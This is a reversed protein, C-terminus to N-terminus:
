PSVTTQIRFYRRMAKGDLKARKFLNAADSPTMTDRARKLMDSAYEEKRQIVEPDQPEEGLQNLKCDCKTCMRKGCHHYSTGARPDPCVNCATLRRGHAICKHQKCVSLHGNHCYKTLSVNTFNKVACAELVCCCCFYNRFERTLICTMDWRTLNPNAVLESARESFCKFCTHRQISEHKSASHGPKSCRPNPKSKGVNRKKKGLQTAVTSLLVLNYPESATAVPSHVIDALPPLIPPSSQPQATISPLLPTLM